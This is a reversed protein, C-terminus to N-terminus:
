KYAWERILPEIERESIEMIMGDIGGVMCRKGGLACAGGGEGLDRYALYVIGEEVSSVNGDMVFTRNVTGLGLGCAM